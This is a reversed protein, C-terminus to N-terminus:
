KMKRLSFSEGGCIKWLFDECCNSVGMRPIQYQEWLHVDFGFVAGIYNTKKVAAIVNDNIDAPCSNPYCFTKVVLNLQQELIKKSSTIEDELQAELIKSLIPHNMTHSGIEIGSRDLERLEDWTCAEYETTPVDPLTLDFANEVQDVVKKRLHDPLSICLDSLQRWVNSREASDTFSLNLETGHANVMFSFSDKTKLAADLRDPWLWIKRDIFNVTTYFTATLNRKTLEPFAYQYFDRYGDDVTVIVARSPWKGKDLFHEVCTALTMVQGYKQMKELQWGFIDASVRGPVNEGLPSFRHYMFVRPFDAVVAQVLRRLLVSNVIIKRGTHKLGM